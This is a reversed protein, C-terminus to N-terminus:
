ASSNTLLLSWVTPGSRMPGRVHGGGRPPRPPPTSPPEMSREPRDPARQARCQTGRGFRARAADVQERTLDWASGKESLLRPFTRRLWSRLTKGDIGLERALAEPSM